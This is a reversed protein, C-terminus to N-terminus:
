RQTWKRVDEFHTANGNARAIADHQTMYRLRTAYSDQVKYKTLWNKYDGHKFAGPGDSIDMANVAQQLGNFYEGTYIVGGFRETNELAQFSKRIQRKIPAIENDLRKMVERTWLDAAQVGVSKRSAFAVEEDIYERDEWEPLKAMYDYLATANYEVELRRDFTFKVQERPVYMVTRHAFFLVVEGFCKYYPSEPLLNGMYKNQSILDIAVGYGLLKSSVLLLTLDKYLDKNHQHSFNAFDGKDSDCDAAHFDIGEPLRARWKIELDDWQHQEGFVAGVAFVRRKTEDGSEDGFASLV